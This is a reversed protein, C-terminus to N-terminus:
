KEFGQQEFLAEVHPLIRRVLEAVGAKNPHAGDRQNLAHVGAVGELFFPYFAVGFEKTLRQYVASFEEGYESGLNPPALMGTFLTPIDRKQLETLIARLNNYTVEPSFGRLGDNAGLELIVFDPNSSLVWSLRSKGGATTDGSVGGNVIQVDEWGEAIAAELQSTFGDAKKLGYGATLSDGFAMITAAKVPTMSLSLFLVVIGTLM